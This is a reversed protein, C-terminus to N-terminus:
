KREVRANKREGVIHWGSPLLKKGFVKASNFDTGAFIPGGLVSDTISLLSSRLKSFEIGKGVKKLASEVESLKRDATVRPKRGSSGKKGGKRRALGAAALLQNLDSEIADAAKQAENAKAQAAAHESKKAEIVTHLKERSRKEAEAAIAAQENRVSAILEKVSASAKRPAAVASAKKAAKKRAM